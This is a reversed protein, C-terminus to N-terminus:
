PKWREVHDSLGADRWNRNLTTNRNEELQRVISEDEIVAGQQNAAIWIPSHRLVHWGPSAHKFDWRIEISPPIYPFLWELTQYYERFIRPPRIKAYPSSCFSFLLSKINPLLSFMHPFPDPVADIDVYHKSTFTQHALYGIQIELGTFLERTKPAMRALTEYSRAAFENSLTLSERDRAVVIFLTRNSYLFKQVEDHLQTNVRMIQLDLRPPRHDRLPQALLAVHAERPLFEAYVQLRLEAPLRLFPFPKVKDELREFAGKLDTECLGDISALLVRIESFTPDIGKSFDSVTFTNVFPRGLLVATYADAYVEPILDPRSLPKVVLYFQESGDIYVTEHFPRPQCADDIAAFITAYDDAPSVTSLAADLAQLRLKLHVADTVSFRELRPIRHYQRPISSSRPRYLEM